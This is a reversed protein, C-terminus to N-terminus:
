GTIEWEDWRNKDKWNEKWHSREYVTVFEAVPSFIPNSDFKNSNIEKLNNWSDSSDTIFCRNMQLMFAAESMTVPSSALLPVPRQYPKPSPLAFPFTPFTMQVMKIDSKDWDGAQPPSM